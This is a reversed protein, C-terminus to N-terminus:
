GAWRLEQTRTEASVPIYPDRKVSDQSCALFAIHTAHEDLHCSISTYTHVSNSNPFFCREYYLRAGFFFSVRSSSSALRVLNTTYTAHELALEERGTKNHTLGETERTELHRNSPHGCVRWGNSYEFGAPAIPRDSQGRLWGTLRRDRDM